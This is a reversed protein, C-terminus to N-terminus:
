CYYGTVLLPMTFAVILWCNIVPPEELRCCNVVILLLLLLLLLTVTYYHLRHCGAVTVLESALLLLFLPETFCDRPASPTAFQLCNYCVVVTAFCNVSLVCNHFTIAVTYQQPM